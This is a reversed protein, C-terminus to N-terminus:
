FRVRGLMLAAGFCLCAIGMGWLLLVDLWAPLARSRQQAPQAHRRSAGGLPIFFLGIALLFGGALYDM